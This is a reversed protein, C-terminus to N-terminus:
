TRGFHKEFLQSTEKDSFEHFNKKFKKRVGMQQQYLVSILGGAAALTRQKSQDYGINTSSLFEKLSEQQVYLDNFNGLTDQLVKLHKIISRM